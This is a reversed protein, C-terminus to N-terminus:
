HLFNILFSFHKAFNWIKIKRWLLDDSFTLFRNDNFIYFSITKSTVLHLKTSGHFWHLKAKNKIMDNPDLLNFKQM